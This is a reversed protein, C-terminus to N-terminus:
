FRFSIFLINKFHDFDYYRYNIGLSIVSDTASLIYTITSTVLMENTLNTYSNGFGISFLIDKFMDIQLFLGSDTRNEQKLFGMEFGLKIWYIDFAEGKLNIFEQNDQSIGIQYDFKNIQVAELKILFINLVM